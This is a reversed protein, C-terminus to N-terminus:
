LTLEDSVHVEDAISITEGYHAEPIKTIIMVTFFHEFADRDAWDPLTEERREAFRQSFNETPEGTDPDRSPVVCRACAEAGDFRVGNVEFGPRDDGLFQDEWFAPVGTIEINPRLRIRAGEVTMDDFWSAVERLTGTSIVSPGLKPRDVFAPPERHRLEVPEGVFESFWESAEERETTLDFRYSEGTENMQLSLVGTEPDFASTVEHTHNIEKGNFTKGVSDFRDEILSDAQPDLMAYERDAELTGGENIRVAELDMADLGKVPYVWINEIHAM